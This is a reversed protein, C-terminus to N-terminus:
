LLFLDIELCSQCTELSFLPLDQLGNVVCLDLIFWVAFVEVHLHGLQGSHSCFTLSLLM